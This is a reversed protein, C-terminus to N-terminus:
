RAEERGLAEYEAGAQLFGAPNVPEGDIRTEYHLHSGTSRGTSGVFGVIGEAPVWAGPRVAFGSLHAYRTLVSHGHDIEVLNGYGGAPEASVVRGAATARAPAGTEAKLDVGTHLAPGRTFPDLRTGFGSSLSIEGFVPRGLPLETAAKRLRAEDDLDRAARALAEGFPDGSAPLLPGGLGARPPALRALDLGTRALVGRLRESGHRSRAGIRELGDAQAAALAEAAGELAALHLGTLGSRRTPPPRGRLEFLGRSGGRDPLAGTLAVDPQMRVCAPTGALASLATQRSELASLREALASLRQEADESGEGIDPSTREPRARMQSLRAEYAARLVDEQALFRAALADRFLLYYSAGLAWATMVALGLALAPVAGRRPRSASTEHQEAPIRSM